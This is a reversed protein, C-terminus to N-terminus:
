IRFFRRVFLAGAGLLLALSTVGPEPVAVAYGITRNSGDDGTFWMENGGVVVPTYTRNTRWTAGDYVSFVTNSESSYRTWNIGDESYAYGIGDDVSGDGGSYWM